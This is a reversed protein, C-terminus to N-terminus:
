LWNLITYKLKVHFNARITTFWIIITKKVYVIENLDMGLGTASAYHLFSYYM